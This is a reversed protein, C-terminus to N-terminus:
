LGFSRGPHLSRIRGPLVQSLVSIAHESTCHGTYVREIRADRIAQATQAIEEDTAHMLHLGGVYSAICAGPFASQVEAAIVRVGAHSCSNFVALLPTGDPASSLELVLSIEHTFDDPLWQKGIRLLMGAQKGLQELGWTTHPVLHIGPLITTVRDTPVRCLREQYRELLGPKIGIYHAEATGGKTSWCTEQCAESLYLPAQENREFFAGMGDAHDYHAHSLVAVDVTALDIGLADANRAFADSQGFDLLIRTTGYQVLASLGHECSLGEVQTNETLITVSCSNSEAAPM